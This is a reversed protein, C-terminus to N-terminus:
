LLAVTVRMIDRVSREQLVMDEFVACTVLELGLTEDCLVRRLAGHVDLVPLLAKDALACQGLAWAAMGRCPVHADDLARVLWPVVRGCLDPRVRAFRGVAWHCSVRLLAHDCFNDDRGTDMIYSLLISHFEQALSPSHVLVEAFAEPIGWGINGSEENMHWMLRRVANRADEKHEEALTALSIGLAHAARHTMEGGLLLFSLLPGMVQRPEMAAIAPVHQQWEVSHLWAHLIKKHERLRAM